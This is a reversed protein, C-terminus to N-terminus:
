DKQRVNGCDGYRPNCSSDDNRNIVGYLGADLLAKYLIDRGDMGFIHLIAQTKEETGCLEEESRMKLKFYIPVLFLDIVLGYWIPLLEISIVAPFKGDPVNAYNPLLMVLDSVFHLVGALINMIIAFKVASMHRSYQKVTGQTTNYADGIVSERDQIVGHIFDMLMGTLCLSVITVGVVFLLSPVDVFGMLFVKGYIGQSMSYLGLLFFALGCVGTICMIYFEYRSSKKDKILSIMNEEAKKPYEDMVIDEGSLFENVSINLAECLKVIVAHDPMSKGREWKSVAKDTLGVREALEKQTFGAEKRKGAIYKGIKEQELM